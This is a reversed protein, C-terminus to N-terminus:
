VLSTKSVIIGDDSASIILPYMETLLCFFSRAKKCLNKRQVLNTNIHTDARPYVLSGLDVWGPWGETPLRLSYWRFSPRAYVPVGRSASAVYVYDPLTFQHRPQPSFFRLDAGGYPSYPRPLVKRKKRFLPTVHERGLFTCPSPVERTEARNCDQWYDTERDIHRYHRYQKISWDLLWCRSCGSRGGSRWCCASCDAHVFGCSEVEQDCM